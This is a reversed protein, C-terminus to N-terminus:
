CNYHVCVCVCVCVRVGCDIPPHAPVAFISYIKMVKGYIVYRM